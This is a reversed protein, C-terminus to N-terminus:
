GQRAAYNIIIEATAFETVTQEAWGLAPFDSGTEGQCLELEGTRIMSLEGSAQELYMRMEDTTLNPRACPCKHYVVALVISLDRLYDSSVSSLTCDCAGQAQRAMNITSAARRLYNKVQDLEDCDNPSICWFDAYEEPSAYMELCSM